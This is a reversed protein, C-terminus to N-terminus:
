QPASRSSRSGDDLIQRANLHVKAATTAGGGTPPTRGPMATEVTPGGQRGRGIRSQCILLSAARGLWGPAVGTTAGGTERLPGSDVEHRHGAGRALDDGREERVRLPRRDQRAPLPPELGAAPPGDRGPEKGDQAGERDGAPELRPRGPPRARRELGPGAGEGPHAGAAPRLDPLLPVLPLPGPRGTPRRLF